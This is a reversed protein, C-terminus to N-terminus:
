SWDYPDEAPRLGFAGFGGQRLLGDPSPRALTVAEAPTTPFFDEAVGSPARFRRLMSLGQDDARIGDDNLRWGPQQQMKGLRASINGSVMMDAGRLLIRSGTGGVNFGDAVTNPRGDGNADGPFPQLFSNNHVRLGRNDPDTLNLGAGSTLWLLNYRVTVNRYGDSGRIDNSFLGQPGPKSARLHWEASGKGPCRLRWVELDGKLVHQSLTQKGQKLVGGPPALLVLDGEGAARQIALSVRKDPCVPPPLQVVGPPVLTQLEGLRLPLVEPAPVPPMFQFGTPFGPQRTGEAGMYAINGEILLTDIGCTKNSHAFMHLIDPHYQNNSWADAVINDRMVINRSVACDDREPGLPVPSLRLFDGWLRTAENRSVELDTGWLAVANMIRSFRSNRVIVGEGWGTIGNLIHATGHAGAAAEGMDGTITVREIVVNRSVGGLGLQIAYKRGTFPREPPPVPTTTMHFWLDRLVLNGTPAGTTSRMEWAALRPPTQPDSGAIVLPADGELGVFADRLARWSLDSYDGPAVCVTLGAKDVAPLTLAAELEVTSSVCLHDARASVPVSVAGDSLVGDTPAAVPAALRLRGDAVAFVAGGAEYRGDSLATAVAASGPANRLGFM